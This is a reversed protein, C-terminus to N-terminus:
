RFITQLHKTIGLKKDCDSCVVLGKLLLNRSKVRTESKSVLIDQVAYFKEKDIIPKHTNKM